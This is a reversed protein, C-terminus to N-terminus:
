AALKAEDAQSVLHLADAGFHQAQRDGLQGQGIALGLTAPLLEGSEAGLETGYMSQLSRGQEEVEIHHDDIVDRREEFDGALEQDNM